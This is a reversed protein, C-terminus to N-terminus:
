NLSDSKPLLPMAGLGDDSLGRVPTCWSIGARGQREASNTARVLRLGFQQSLSSLEHLMVVHVGRETEAQGLASQNCHKRQTFADDCAKELRADSAPPCADVGRVPHYPRLTLGLRSVQAFEPLSDSLWQIRPSPHLARALIRM